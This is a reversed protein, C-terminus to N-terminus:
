LTTDTLRDTQVDYCIMVPVILALLRFNPNLSSLQEKKEDHM